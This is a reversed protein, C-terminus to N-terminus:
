GDVFTPMASVSSAAAALSLAAAGLSAAQIVSGAPAANRDGLTQTLQQAAAVAKVATQEAVNRSDAGSALTASLQEIMSQPSSEAYGPALPIFANMLQAYIATAVQSTLKEGQSMRELLGAAAVIADRLGGAQPELANALTAADYLQSALQRANVVITLAAAQSTKENLLPMQQATFAAAQHALQRVTEPVSADSELGSFAALGLLALYAAGIGQASTFSEAQAAEAAFRAAFAVASGAIATVDGAVGEGSAIVRPKSNLDLPNTGRQIELGDSFGDNDADPDDWDKLGDSDTDLAEGRVKEVADPIGDKDTDTRLNSAPNKPDLGLVLEYADSTGDRDM